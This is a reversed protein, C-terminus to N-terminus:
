DPYAPHMQPLELSIGASETEFWFVFLDSLFIGHPFHYM